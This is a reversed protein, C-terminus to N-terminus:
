LFFIIVIWCDGIETVIYVIYTGFKSGTKRISTISTISRISFDHDNSLEIQHRSIRNVSYKDKEFHLLCLIMCGKIYILLPDFFYNFFFFCCVYKDVVIFCDDALNSSHIPLDKLELPFVTKKNNHYYNM